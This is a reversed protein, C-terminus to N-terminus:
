FDLEQGQGRLRLDEFIAQGRRSSLVIKTDNFDQQFVGSVECIIQSSKKQKGCNFIAQFIKDNNNKIPLLALSDAVTPYLGDVLSPASLLVHMRMSCQTCLGQGCAAGSRMWVCSFERQVAGRRLNYIRQIEM